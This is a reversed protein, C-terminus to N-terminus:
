DARDPGGEGGGFNGRPRYVQRLLRDRPASFSEIDLSRLDELSCITLDILDSGLDHSPFDM